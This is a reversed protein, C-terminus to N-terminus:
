IDSHIIGLGEKVQKNAIKAFDEDNYIRLTFSFTAGKGRGGSEAWIKGGHKEVISKSIYLGLGTGQAAKQNTIYSGKVMGFKHFLKPIDEADIGEGNDTVCTTVEKDKVEFSINIQGGKPAFKLSNGILNILVEKIKDADAMVFLAGQNVLLYQYQDNTSNNENKPEINETIKNTLKQM